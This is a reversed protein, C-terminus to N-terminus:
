IKENGHPHEKLEEELQTYFYRRQLTNYIVLACAIGLFLYLFKVPEDSQISYLNIYIFRAFLLTLALERLLLSTDLADRNKYKFMIFTLIGSAFFIFLQLLIRVWDHDSVGNFLDIFGPALILQLFM